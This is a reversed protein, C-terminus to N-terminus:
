ATAGKTNYLTKINLMYLYLTDVCYLCLKVSRASFVATLPTGAATFYVRMRVLLVGSNVSQRMSQKNERWRTDTNPSCSPKKNTLM